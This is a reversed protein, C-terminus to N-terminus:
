GQVRSLHPPCHARGTSEEVDRIIVGHPCSGRIRAMSRLGIVALRSPSCSTQSAATWALAVAVARFRAPYLTM